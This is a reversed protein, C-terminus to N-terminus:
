KTIALSMISIRIEPNNELIVKIIAELTAGTTIVDDVIAIHNLKIKNKVSFKTAVNDWRMFRNKNTQSSTQKLSEIFDPIVPIKLISSIGDAIKESQNYGRTFKKKPHIPVPILADINQFSPLDKIKEGILVGLTEGIEPKNKYKLAHLIPQVNKGKEFYVYAYTSSIKARGWFLQDLPSPEIFREFYTYQLENQCFFCIYKKQFLLENQCIICTEPYILHIIDKKIKKLNLSNIFSM